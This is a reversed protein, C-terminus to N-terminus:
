KLSHDARAEVERAFALFSREDYSGSTNRIEAFYIATRFLLIQEWRRKGQSVYSRVVYRSRQGYGPLAREVISATERDSPEGIRVSGCQPAPKVLLDMYKDGLPAPLSVLEVSPSAGGQDFADAYPLDAPFEDFTDATRGGTRILERCSEPQVARGEFPDDRPSWGFVERNTRREFSRGQYSVPLAARLEDTTNPYDIKLL